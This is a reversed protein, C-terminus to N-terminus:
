VIHPTWCIKKLFNILRCFWDCNLLDKLVIKRTYLNLRLMDVKVYFEIELNGSFNMYIVMVMSNRM